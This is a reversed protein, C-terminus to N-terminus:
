GRHNILTAPLRNIRSIWCDTKIQEATLIERMAHSIIEAQKLQGAFAFLSPGSGSFSMSLAGNALAATKIQQFKPVFHARQPEIIVDQLSQQLLARNNEYLAVIFTALNSPQKVFDSLPITTQLVKRADLTAVQLHPHIIVCYIDPLPLQIINLPQISKILTMGRCICPIINDAHWEGSALKEALLGYHVLQELSLPTTLFANAAMLAIIIENEGSLLTKIAAFCKADALSTGGFKHVIEKM